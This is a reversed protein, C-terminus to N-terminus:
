VLNYLVHRYANLILQITLVMKDLQRILCLYLVNHHIRVQIVTSSSFMERVNTRYSTTRVGIAFVSSLYSM